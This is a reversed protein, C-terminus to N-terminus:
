SEGRALKGADITAQRRAASIAAEKDDNPPPGRGYSQKPAHVSLWGQAISHDMAAIFQAPGSSAWAKLLKELALPTAPERRQRRHELWDDVAKRCEPTELEAPFPVTDPSPSIPKKKSKGAKTGKPVIPTSIKDERIKDARTVDANTVGNTVRSADRNRKRQQRIRGDERHKEVDAASQQWELYDHVQYGGEVELWLGAAVLATVSAQPDPDDVDSVRSTVRSPIFGDSLTEVCYGLASVYLLRGFPGVQVAKRHFVFRPDLKVFLGHAM